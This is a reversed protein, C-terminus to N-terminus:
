HKHKYDCLGMDRAPGLAVHRFQSQDKPLLLKEVLYAKEKNSWEMMDEGIFMLFIEPGGDPEVAGDASVGFERAKWYVGGTAL